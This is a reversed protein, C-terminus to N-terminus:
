PRVLADALRPLLTGLTADVKVRALEDGRTPGLAVIGIPLEERAARYVFRRGSYVTLSSGLVLLAEAEEFLAWARAVIDSPVNEGFFVVDPKLPGRCALCSPVLFSDLGTGAIEADGDPAQPGPRDSRISGARRTWDPNAESLRGQLEARESM